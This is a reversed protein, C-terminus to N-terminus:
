CKGNFSKIAKLGLKIISNNPKAKKPLQNLQKGYKKRYYYPIMFTTGRKAARIFTERTWWTYRM